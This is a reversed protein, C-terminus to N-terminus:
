APFAERLEAIQAETLCRSNRRQLLPYFKATPDLCMRRGARGPESVQVHRLQFAPGQLARSLKFGMTGGAETLATTTM